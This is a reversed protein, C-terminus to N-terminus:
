ISIIEILQTYVKGADSDPYSLRYLSPIQAPLGPNSEWCPLPKRKEVAVPEPVWGAGYGAPVPPEKEAPSAPPVKLQGSGKM